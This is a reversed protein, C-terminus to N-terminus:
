RMDFKKQKFLLPKEIYKQIVFKRSKIKKESRKIEEKENILKEQYGSLLNIMLKKLEDLNDFLEVGFGRNYGSPKILWLNHKDFMNKSLKVIQYDIESKSKLYKKTMEKKVNQFYNKHMNQFHKNKKINRILSKKSVQENKKPKKTAKSNNNDKMKSSLKNFYHIFVKFRQQFIDEDRDFAFTLPVISFV